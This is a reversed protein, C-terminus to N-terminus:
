LQPLIEELAQNVTKVTLGSERIEALQTALVEPTVSYASGSYDVNHYMLILWSKETRATTLWLRFQEISTDPTLYQSRLQYQNFNTKTNFGVDSTRQSRYYKKIQTTTAANYAGYPAAIDTVIGGVYRELYLKSQALETILKKRSLTTLDYHNVTHSAVQHGKSYFERVEALSMYGPTGIFGTVIYQTSKINNQELIPLANQYISQWGDDFTVSVLGREFGSKSISEPTLSFSDTTLSGITSILHFVSVMKASLPTTFVDSYLTWNSSPAASRLETYTISDDQHQVMVVVRSTTDAFYYDSFRYLQGGIIPQPTFYWKADGSNYRTITTRVAYSGQYCVSVYEYQADLDGWLYGRHWDIPASNVSNEVSNNPILNEEAYAAPVTWGLSLIFLATIIYRRM